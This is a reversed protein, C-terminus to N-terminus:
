PGRQIWRRLTMCCHRVLEFFFSTMIVPPAQHLHEEECIYSSAVAIIVLSGPLCIFFPRRFRCVGEKDELRVRLSNEQTHSLKLLTPSPQGHMNWTGDQRHHQLVHSQAVRPPRPPVQPGWPKSPWPLLLINFESYAPQKYSRGWSCVNQATIGFNCGGKLPGGKLQTALSMETAQWLSQMMWFPSCWWFCREIRLLLQNWLLIDFCLM